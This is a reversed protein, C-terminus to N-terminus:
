KESQIKQFVRNHGVALIENFGSRSIENTVRSPGNHGASSYSSPKYDTYLSADDFVILGNINLMKNYVEFDHKVIKYDHNGDIYILDFKTSLLSDIIEQDTSFGKHIIPLPLDFFRFNAKLDEFYNLNKLYFSVSDGAPTFPSIAHIESDINFYKSLISFLSLTQGRYVGIELIVKPKYEKFIKYWMAHFADEGFGRSNLKFYERHERIYKPAINWFFHHFYLYLQRKNPYKNNLLKIDLDINYKKYKMKSLFYHFSNYIRMINTLIQRM